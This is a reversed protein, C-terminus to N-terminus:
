RANNALLHHWRFGGINLDFLFPFKPASGADFIEQFQSLELMLPTSIHVIKPCYRAIADLSVASLNWNIAVNFFRLRPLCSILCEFDADTFDPANLVIPRYPNYDIDLEKLAVLGGLALIDGNSLYTDPPLQLFLKQLGSLRCIPPLVSDGSGHIALSLSGRLSKIM